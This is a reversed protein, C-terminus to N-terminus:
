LVKIAQLGLRTPQIVTSYMRSLPVFSHLLLSLSSLHSVSVLIPSLSFSTTWLHSLQSLPPLSSSFFAFLLLSVPDSPSFLPLVFPHLSSFLFSPHIFSLLSSLSNITQGREGWWTWIWCWLRESVILWWCRWDCACVCEPHSSWCQLSWYKSVCISSLVTDESQKLWSLTLIM